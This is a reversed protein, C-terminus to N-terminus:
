SLYYNYTRVQHNVLDCRHLINQSTRFFVANNVSDYNISLRNIRRYNELMQIIANNRREKPYLYFIPNSVLNFLGTPYVKHLNLWEHYSDEKDMDQQQERWKPISNYM